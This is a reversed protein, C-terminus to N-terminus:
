KDLESILKLRLQDVHTIINEASKLSDDAEATDVTDFDGYDVDTRRSLLLKFQKILDVPLLGTKVFRLSLM